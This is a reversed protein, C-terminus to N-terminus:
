VEGEGGNRSVYVNLAGRESCLTAIDFFPGTRIAGLDPLDWWLKEFLSALGEYNGVDFLKQANSTDFTVPKFRPLERGSAANLAELYAPILPLTAKAVHAWEARTKIPHPM